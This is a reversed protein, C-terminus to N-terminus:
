TLAFFEMGVIYRSNHQVYNTSLQKEELIM